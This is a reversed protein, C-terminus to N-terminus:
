CCGQGFGHPYPQQKTHSPPRLMSTVESCRNKEWGAANMGAVAGLVNYKPFINNIIIISSTDPFSSYATCKNSTQQM